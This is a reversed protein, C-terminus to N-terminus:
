VIEKPQSPAILPLSFPQVTFTVSVGDGEIDLACEFSQGPVAEVVEAAALAAAVALRLANLDATLMAALDLAVDDM